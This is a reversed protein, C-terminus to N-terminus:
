RKHKPPEDQAAILANEFREVYRQLTVKNFWVNLGIFMTWLLAILAFMNQSPSSLFVLIWGILSAPLLLLLLVSSLVYFLTIGNSVKGFVLSTNESIPRLTGRIEVNPYRNEKKLLRFEFSDDAVRWVEVLWNWFWLEQHLGEVRVRCEQLSLDVVFEFPVAKYGIFTLIPDFLTRNFKAKRKPKSFTM